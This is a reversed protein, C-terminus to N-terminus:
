SAVASTARKLRLGAALWNKLFRIDASGAKFAEIAGCAREMRVAIEGRNAILVKDFMQESSFSFLTM